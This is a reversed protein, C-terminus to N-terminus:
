SWELIEAIQGPKNSQIYLTKGTLALGDQSYVCGPPITLWSTSTAGPAFAIYARAATGTTNRIKVTIKDTDASLAQSYETAALPMSLNYITPASSAGMSITVPIPEGAGNIVKTKIYMDGRQGPVVEEGSKKLVELGHDDVAM